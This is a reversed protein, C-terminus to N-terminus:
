NPKSAPSLGIKDPATKDGPSKMVRRLHDACDRNSIKSGDWIGYGLFL